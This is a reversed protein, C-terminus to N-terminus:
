KSKKPAEVVATEVENRKVDATEVPQVDAREPFLVDKLKKGAKLMAFQVDTLHHDGEDSRVVQMGNDQGIHKWGGMLGKTPLPGPVLGPNEECLAAFQADDLHLIQEGDKVVHKGNDKGIVKM